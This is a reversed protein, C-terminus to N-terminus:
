SEAETEWLAVIDERLISPQQLRFRHGRKVKQAYERLRGSERHGFGNALAWAYLEDVDFGYGAHHLRQLVVIASDRDYSSVLGNAHNVHRELFRMAVEVVPSLPQAGADGFVENTALHRARNAQLWAAQRPDDGWMLVCVATARGRLQDSICGLVEVTPWPALVPGHSWRSGFLSVPKEVMAGRTLRPLLPNNGYMNKAHLLVLPRGAQDDLWAAGARVALDPDVGDFPVYFVPPASEDDPM